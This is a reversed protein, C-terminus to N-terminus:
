GVRQIDRLYINSNEFRDECDTHETVEKADLEECDWQSFGALSRQRHIKGTPYQLPNDKGGGPDCDIFGAKNKADRKTM